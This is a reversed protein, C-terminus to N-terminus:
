KWLDKFEQLLGAMSADGQALTEYLTIEQLEKARKAMKIKLAKANNRRSERAFYADFCIRCVIERIPAKSADEPEEFSVIKAIGFGHNASKVVVTDGVVLSEDYCAYTYTSATNNGEIFKVSALRFPMGYTEITLPKNDMQSNRRNNITKFESKYFYYAGKSSATNYYADLLIALKGDFEQTNYITGICGSYKGGYSVSCLEIQILDGAKM